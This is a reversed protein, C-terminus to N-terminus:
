FKHDHGKWAHKTSKFLKFFPEIKKLHALFITVVDVIKIKIKKM